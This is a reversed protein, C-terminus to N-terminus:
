GRVSLVAAWAARYLCHPDEAHYRGRGAVYVAKSRRFSEIPPRRCKCILEHSTCLAPKLEHKRRLSGFSFKM